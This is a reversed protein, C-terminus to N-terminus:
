CLQLLFGNDCCMFLGINISVTKRTPTVIRM